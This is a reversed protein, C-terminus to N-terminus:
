LVGVLAAMAKAAKQPDNYDPIRHHTLIEIGDRSFRGGIFACVIPKHPYQRSAEVIVRADEVPQTVTDLVQAVILGHIYPEALLTHIAAKYRDARADGVIDLPNRRSYAPHMLGTADLKKLTPEELPVLNVGYQNCYDALLVGVGGANTVVAVANKKARPAESLVKALDFLEEMTDVLQVRAQRMAGKFLAFSGALSGTHSAAATVGYETRGGKMMLVPKRKAADKVAELFRRGRRVGELYLTIVKTEKDQAFYEVFDATDLDAANGISVMASFAYRASIAWDIVAGVLAGSQSIFATHGGPPMAPAFTANLSTAPRIVGLCNPGVVRVKGERAIKLLEQEREVGEPGTESYGASIVIAAKVGKAGADKMVQPVVKAPVAILALDVEGPVDKLSPYSNLGMVDKEFPNVIHVKGAYPKNFRQTFFGGELLNKLLGYGIKDARPSAGVVAVSRPEFLADMAKRTAADM